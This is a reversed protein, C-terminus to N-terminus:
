VAPLGAQATALLWLTAVTLLAASATVAAIAMLRPLVLGAVLGVLPLAQIAHLGFFHSIRLDGGSMSWGTLPLFPGVAAGVLPGDNAGIAGGTYGGLLGSLILGLGMGLQLPLAASRRRILHWLLALGILAPAMTLVVAGGAMIEGGIEEFWTDDGNFHSRVGRAAQVSIFLVEYIVTVGLAAKVWRVLRSQPLDGPLCAAILLVTAAHLGLSLQFKLPKLWIAEDDLVRPDIQLSVVTLPVMVVCLAVALELPSQPMRLRSRVAHSPILDLLSM